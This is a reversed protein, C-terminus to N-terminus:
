DQGHSIEGLDKENPIGILYIKENKNIVQISREKTNLYNNYKNKLNEDKSLVYLNQNSSGKWVLDTSAGSIFKGDVLASIYDFIEYFEQNIKDYSYGTYVLIDDFCFAKLEKVLFLLAEYQEFPEGGSITIAKTPYRKIKEVLSNLNIKYSEEQIWTHKSMCGECRSSCGQFWLGVRTGIGFTRVPFHLLNIYIGDTNEM